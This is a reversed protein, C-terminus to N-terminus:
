LLLAYSDGSLNINFQFHIKCATRVSSTIPHMSTKFVDVVVVFDIVLSAGV